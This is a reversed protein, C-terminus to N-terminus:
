KEQEDPLHSLGEPLSEWDSWDEETQAMQQYTEV